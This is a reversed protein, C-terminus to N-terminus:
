AAMGGALALERALARDISRHVQQQLWVPRLTHTDAGLPIVELEINPWRDLREIRGSRAFEEHLPEAGAVFPATYTSTSNTVPWFM